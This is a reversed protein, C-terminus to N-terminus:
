SYYFRSSIACNLSTCTGKLSVSSLLVGGKLSVSSLLVGGKLLVGKLNTAIKKFITIAKRPMFVGFLLHKSIVFLTVLFTMLSRQHIEDDHVQLM